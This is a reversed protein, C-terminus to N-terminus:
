DEDIKKRIEEIDTVLERWYEANGAANMYKPSGDEAKEEALEAWAKAEGERHKTSMLLYTTLTAWQERTMTITKEQKDWIRQNEAEVAVRLDEWDEEDWEPLQEILLRKIERTDRLKYGPIDEALQKVLNYYEVLGAALDKGIGDVIAKAIEAAQGETDQQEEEQEETIEEVEVNGSDAINSHLALGYGVEWAAEESEAEIEWTVWGEDVLCGAKVKYKKLGEYLREARFTPAMSHRDPKIYEGNEDMKIMSRRQKGEYIYTVSKETRKVVKITFICENDCISRSYYTKGVEFKKMNKREKTITKYQGKPKFREKHWNQATSSGNEAM